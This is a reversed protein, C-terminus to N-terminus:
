HSLMINREPGKIMKSNRIGSIKAFLEPRSSVNFSRYINRIHYKVTNPSIFLREAIEKNSLGQLLLQLVERQRKNLRHSIKSESINGTIEVECSEEGNQIKPFTHKVSVKKKILTKLLLTKHYVLALIITSAIVISVFMMDTKENKMMEWLDNSQRFTFERITTIEPITIKLQSNLAIAFAGSSTFKTIGFTSM